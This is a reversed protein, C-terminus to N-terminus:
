KAIRLFDVYEYEFNEDIEKGIKEIM